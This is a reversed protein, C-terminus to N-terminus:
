GNNLAQLTRLAVEGSIRLLEPRVFEAKDNAQHYNPDDSWYFFVSPIGARMFSAHDSSGTLNGRMENVPQGMEVAFTRAYQVLEPSGGLLFRDGVGVMDLNIMGHIRAREADPLSEVYHKSGILGNEEAGFLIVRVEHTMQMRSIVRAMELVTASGSGNDNAGPGAPVSDLHAGIIVIGDDKGPRSGIVNEAKITETGADVNLAARLPGQALRDQLAQGEAQTVFVVPVPVEDKLDPRISGPENNAIIVGAAGAAIANAVKDQFTLTGRTVLVINGRAAAPIEATNGLGGYVITGQVKGSGSRNVPGATLKLGPAAPITLELARVQYEEFSFPQRQVSFGADKLRAAAYDAAKTFAASGAPRSGITGALALVHQYARDASFAADTTASPTATSPAPVAARVTPSAPALTAQKPPAPAPNPPAFIGSCAALLPLILFSIAAFQRLQSAM